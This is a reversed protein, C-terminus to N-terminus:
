SEDPTWGGDLNTFVLEGDVTELDPWALNQVGEFAGAADEDAFSATTPGTILRMTLAVLGGSSGACTELLGAYNAITQVRRAVPTTPGPGSDDSDSTVRFPVNFQFSDLVREAGLRGRRGPVIDHAGRYINPAFLGTWADPPFLLGPLEWLATGDVLLGDPYGTIPDSM